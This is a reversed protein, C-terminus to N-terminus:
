KLPIARNVLSGWREIPMEIERHELAGYDDVGHHAKRLGAIAQRMEALAEHQFVSSFGLHDLVPGQDDEPTGGLALLYTCLTQLCHMADFDTDRHSFKGDLRTHLSECADAGDTPRLLLRRYADPSILRLVVLSAVFVPLESEPLQGTYRPEVPSSGDDAFLRATLRVSDEVNRLGGHVCLPVLALMDCIAQFSAADIKDAWGAAKLSDSVMRSVDRAAVTPMQISRNVIGRLYQSADCQEGHIRRISHELVEQNVALVVYVGPVQFMFHVQELLQVAYQPDCRDAEDIFLVLPSEGALKSLQQQFGELRQQALVWQNRNPGFFVKLNVFGMTRGAVIDSVGVAAHGAIRKAAKRLRYTRSKSFVTSMYFTLDLLPNKTHSQTWANFEFVRPSQPAEQQLQAACMGLFVTKGSGWEGDVLHLSAGEGAMLRECFEKVHGERGLRDHVPKPEVLVPSWRTRRSLM